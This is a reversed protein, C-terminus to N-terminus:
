KDLSCSCPPEKEKLDHGVGVSVIALIAFVLAAIWLRPEDLGFFLCIVACVGFLVGLGTAIVLV